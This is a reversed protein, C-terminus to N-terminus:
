PLGSSLPTKNYLSYPKERRKSEEDGRRECMLSKTKECIIM